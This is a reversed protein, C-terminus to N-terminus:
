GVSHIEAEERNSIGYCKCSYNAGFPNKEAVAALPYETQVLKASLSSATLSFHYGHEAM